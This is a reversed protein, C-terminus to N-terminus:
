QQYQTHHSTVLKVEGEEAKGDRLDGVRINGSDDVRIFDLGDNTGSSGRGLLSGVGLTLKRGVDNTSSCNDLANEKM